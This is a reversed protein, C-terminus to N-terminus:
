GTTESTILWKADVKKFTLTKTVRDSYTNSQYSQTFHATAHDPDNLHIRVKSIRVKIFAPKSIRRKRDRRWHQRSMRGEPKFDGAYHSLYASVDKDSWATVWLDIARRVAAVTDANSAETKAPAAAAGQAAAPASAPKPAAAKQPKPAARQEPAPAPAPAASAATAAATSTPAGAAQAAGVRTQAVTSAPPPPQAPAQGASKQKPSPAASGTTEPVPAAPKSSKAMVAPAAGPRNSLSFLNNILALKAKASKNHEDLQLAHNYAQSAMKAYIDGLNEDATAYSPHTDIAKQLLERAKEYKGEAAYIVALNNYPEPLEPHASILEKFIKEADDMRNLRTLIVGKLFRLTVNDSSQKLDANVASLADQLKDQKLLRHVSAVDAPAAAPLLICLMGLLCSLFPLRLTRHRGYYM